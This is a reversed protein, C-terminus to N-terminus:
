QSQVQIFRYILLKYLRTQKLEGLLTDSFRLLFTGQQCDLLIAEAVEKQVFGFIRNEQWAIRVNEDDSLLKLAEFFWRWFTFHLYRKSELKVVAFKEWTVLADPSTVGLREGLYDINKQNLKKGNRNGTQMRSTVFANLAESLKSWPVSNMNNFYQERFIASWADFELNENAIVRIIPQSVKWIKFVEGEVKVETKFFLAFKEEFSRLNEARIVNTMLQMNRFLAFVSRGQNTIQATETKIEGLPELNPPIENSSKILNAQIENILAFKSEGSLLQINM